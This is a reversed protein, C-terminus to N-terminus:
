GGNFPSRTALWALLALIGVAVISGPWVDRWRRRDRLQFRFADVWVTELRPGMFWAMATGALLGGLHGWNDIGPTLGLALNLVAVFIIQRLQVSGWRGLTSRHLFLFAGLAGLLGFIAGSAGVSAYPSLALSLIVGAVGSLLFLVLMRPSGFFSEVAPGLAYLSYMNVLLHVVGAHIFIPTILRWVQGAAIAENVKAGLAMVVDIGYFQSTALQLLFVFATLAILGLTAPSHTLRRLASQRRPSPMGGVPGPTAGPGQPQATSGEPTPPPGVLGALTM